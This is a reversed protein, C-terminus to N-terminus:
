YCLWSWCAQWRGWSVARAVSPIVLRNEIDPCTIYDILIDFSDNKEYKRYGGVFASDAHDLYNLMGEHMPLGARLISIIVPQEQM